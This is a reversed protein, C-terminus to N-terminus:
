SITWGKDQGIVLEEDSLKALNTAGFVITHTGEMDSSYDCLANLIRVLTDHNLCVCGGFDLGSIGINLVRNISVLCNTSMFSRVVSTAERFDLVEIVKVSCGNFAWGFDKVKSFDFDICEISNNAFYNNISNFLIDKSAPYVELSKCGSYIPAGALYSEYRLGKVEVLSCCGEFSPHTRFSTDVCRVCELVSCNRFFHSNWVESVPRVKMGKLVCYLVDSSFRKSGEVIEESEFYYIVYRTKYGLGCAKDKTVDWRHVLDGVVSVYEIGDSTVIKSASWGYIMTEVNSDSLLCIMKAPYDEMDNELIRDVDWWDSRPRWGSSGARVSVSRLCKVEGSSSRYRVVAM